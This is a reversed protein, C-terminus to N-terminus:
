KQIWIKDFSSAYGLASVLDVTQCFYMSNKNQLCLWAFRRSLDIPNSLPFHFLYQSLQSGGSAGCLDGIGRFMCSSVWAQGKSQQGPLSINAVLKVASQVFWDILAIQSFPSNRTVQTPTKHQDRWSESTSAAWCSHDEINGCVTLRPFARQM